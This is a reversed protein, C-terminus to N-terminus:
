KLWEGKYVVEAPGEVILEEDVEVSVNGAPTKVMIRKGVLGKLHAAYAAACSGSGSSYTEGVGREWFLVEITSDNVVKVFEVNTREPFFPHEEIEKGIEKWELSSPLNEFFMVCHPNGVSVVTVPYINNGISLPYDIISNRDRGDDFPIDRSSLKPKGMSIKFTFSNGNRGELWVKRPGVRTIFQIEREKTIGKYYLYAAACRIGNGSIEAESGDANFIRFGFGKKEISIVILGDAGAGYHRHCIQRALEGPEGVVNNKEVILFDNGLAHTKYFDM